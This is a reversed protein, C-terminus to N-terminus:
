IKMEENIKYYYLFSLHVGLVDEFFNLPIKNIFKFLFFIDNLTGQSNPISTPHHIISFYLSIPSKYPKVQQNCGITRPSTRVINTVSYYQLQASCRHAYVDIIGCCEFHPRSAVCFTLVKTKPTTIGGVPFFQQVKWRKSQKLKFNLGQKM